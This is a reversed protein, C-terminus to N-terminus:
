DLTRWHSLFEEEEEELKAECEDGLQNCPWQRHLVAIHTMTASKMAYNRQKWKEIDDETRKIQAKKSDIREKYFRKIARENRFHIRSCHDETANPNGPCGCDERPIPQLGEPDPHPPYRSPLPGIDSIPPM